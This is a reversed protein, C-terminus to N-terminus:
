IRWSHSMPSTEYCRQGETQANTMKLHYGYTEEECFQTYTFNDLTHETSLMIGPRSLCSDKTTVSNEDNLLM